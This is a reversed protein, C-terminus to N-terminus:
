WLENGVPKGTPVESHMNDETIADVLSELALAAPSVPRIVICNEQRVIEIPSDVEIGCEAAMMKPLRVALSNGWKQAKAVM